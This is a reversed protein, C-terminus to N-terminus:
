AELRTVLELLKREIKEVRHEIREHQKSEYERSKEISDMISKYSDLHKESAEYFRDILASQLSEVMATSAKSSEKVAILATTTEVASKRVESNLLRNEDREKKWAWALGLIVLLLFGIPFGYVELIKLATEVM